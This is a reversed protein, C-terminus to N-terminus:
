QQALKVSLGSPKASAQAPYLAPPAPPSLAPAPPSFALSNLAAAASVESLKSLALASTNFESSRTAPSSPPKGTASPVPMPRGRKISTRKEKRPVGQEELLRTWKEEEALEVIGLLQRRTPLNAPASRSLLSSGDEQPSSGADVAMGTPARIAMPKAARSPQQKAPLQHARASRSPPKVPSPVFDFPPVPLFAAHEDSEDGIDINEEEDSAGAAAPEAKV